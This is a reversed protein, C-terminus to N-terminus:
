RELLRDATSTDPNLDNLLIYISIVLVWTPFLMVVWLSFSISLLVVLAGAYTALALVRPMTRTRVWITALSMMFVGAMKIAYVTSVEYMVARGYSYVGTSLLSTPDAVYTAVMGSALASAVFTMALFLLGSGLFVTGFFRDELNGIRDRIVGMFWLFSIGAFPVLRLAFEVLGHREELWQGGDSPDAPISLRIMVYSAGLLVAFVIGAVAAARPTRLRFGVEPLIGDMNM